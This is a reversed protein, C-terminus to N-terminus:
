TFGGDREEGVHVYIFYGGIGSGIKRLRLSLCSARQLNPVGMREVRM